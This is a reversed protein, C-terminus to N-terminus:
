CLEMVAMSQYSLVLFVFRSHRSGDDNGGNSVRDSPTEDGRGEQGAQQTRVNIRSGFFVM